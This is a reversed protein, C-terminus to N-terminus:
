ADSKWRYGMGYVTDVRDFAPDVVLFKRRLRKIHSTITSDDVVIHADAMLQDRNKVHGPHLSLAHVLWFETLTLEVPVSKWTVAFRRLDIRLDGRLIVEEGDARQEALEARRFLAAVRALLHPLSVSKTVNDDAGLRLGAVMDFESDRATLFIIPLSASRQRLERCLTFGGDPEDGLGIDLLVLDPLQQQLALSASNRDRFSLVDYGHTRLADSYNASIAPDDEVIAIRRPVAFEPVTDVPPFYVGHLAHAVAQWRIAM